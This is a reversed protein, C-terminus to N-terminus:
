EPHPGLLLTVNGERGGRLDPPRARPPLRRREEGGVDVLQQKAARSGRAVAEGQEHEQVAPDPASSPPMRIRSKSRDRRCSLTNPLPWFSRTMGNRPRITM